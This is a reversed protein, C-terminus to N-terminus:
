VLRRAVRPRLNVRAIPLSSTLRGCAAAAAVEAEIAAAVEPDPPDVTM